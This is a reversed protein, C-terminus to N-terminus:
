SVIERASVEFHSNQTAQPKIKSQKQKGKQVKYKRKYNRGALVFLESKSKELRSTAPLENFLARIKKKVTVHLKQLLVLM